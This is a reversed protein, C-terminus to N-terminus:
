ALARRLCALARPADGLPWSGFLHLDPRVITLRPAARAGASNHRSKASRASDASLAGLAKLAADNAPIDSISRWAIPPMAASASEGASPLATGVFERPAREIAARDAGTVIATFWPGQTLDQLARPAGDIGAISAFPLRSGPHPAMAPAGDALAARALSGREYQIAIQSVARFALSRLRPIRVLSAAVTGLLASRLAALMPQETTAFVFFRDTTRLLTRIVPLREEDFTELLADGAAGRLVLALKWALNTADQIGTNMGQGGVPSHVHAADGLLFIRRTRGVRLREVARHHLRYISSWRPDSLSLELRSDGSAISAITEFPITTAAAMERPLKGIVRFRRDGAMAFFAVLSRRDPCVTVGDDAIGGDVRCDALYFRHEYAGGQFSADLAHRVFSSSGDCACLWACDIFEETEVIADPGRAGATAGAARGAHQLEGRRVGVRVGGEREDISIAECGRMVPVGQERLASLLLAETENQGLSLIYPFESQGAGIRGLPIEARLRGRQVLRLRSLPRGMALARRALGLQALFELTRAHVVAARSEPSPGENRDIIRVAVGRRALQLAMTLGTPGAGVVLVECPTRM